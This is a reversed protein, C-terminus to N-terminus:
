LESFALSNEQYVSMREGSFHKPASMREGMLEVVRVFTGWSLKEGIKPLQTNARGFM